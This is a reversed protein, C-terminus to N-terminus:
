RRPVRHKHRLSEEKKRLRSAKKVVESVGRAVFIAQRTEKKRRVETVSRWRMARHRRFCIRAPHQTSNTLETARISTSSKAHHIRRDHAAQIKSNGDKHYFLPPHSIRYLPLDHHDILVARLNSGRGARPALYFEFCNSSRGLRGLGLATGAQGARM